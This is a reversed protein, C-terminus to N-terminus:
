NALPFRGMLMTLERGAVDYLGLGIQLRQIEKGCVPIGEACRVFDVKVVVLCNDRLIKVISVGPKVIEVHCCLIVQSLSDYRQQVQIKLTRSGLRM